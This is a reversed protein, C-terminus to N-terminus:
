STGEEVPANGVVLAVLDVVCAPKDSGELEVTVRTTVQSGMAVPTVSLLEVGARVRAGVRVPAPFRVKNCGYNVAMAVDEIRYVEHSLLPVLSLTLFGHAITAGFPGAAAREPDVHIWQHDGTAEAFLDIQSQTVEQWSGYGLHSGVAAAVEELGHFTRM